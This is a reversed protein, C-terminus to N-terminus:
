PSPHGQSKRLHFEALPLDAVSDTNTSREVPRIRGRCGAGKFSGENEHHCRPTIAM